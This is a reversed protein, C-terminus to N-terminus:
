KKKIYKLTCMWANSAYILNQPKNTYAEFTRPDNMFIEGTKISLQDYLLNDILNQHMKPFILIKRKKTSKAFINLSFAYNDNFEITKVLPSIRYEDFSNSNDIYILNKSTSPFFITNSDLLEKALVTQGIRDKKEELHKEFLKILRYFREETTIKLNRLEDIPECLSNERNVLKMMLNKNAKGTDYADDILARIYIMVDLDIEKALNDAMDALSNLMFTQRPLYNKLIDVAGRFMNLHTTRNKVRVSDEGENENVPMFYDTARASESKVANHFTGLIYYFELLQSQCLREYIAKLVEDNFYLAIEYFHSRLFNTPLKAFFGQLTKIITGLHDSYITFLILISSFVKSEYKQYNSLLMRYLSDFFDKLIFEERSQILDEQHLFFRFLIESLFEYIKPNFQCLECAKTVSIYAKELNNKTLSVKADIIYYQSKLEPKIDNEEIYKMIIAANEENNAFLNEKFLLLLTKTFLKSFVDNNYIITNLKFSPEIGFLRESRLLYLNNMLVQQLIKGGDILPIEFLYENWNYNTHNKSERSLKFISNSLGTFISNRIQVIRSLCSPLRKKSFSRMECNRQFEFIDDFITRNGKESVFSDYGEEFEIVKQHDEIRQKCFAGM